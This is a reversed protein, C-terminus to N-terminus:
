PNTIRKLSANMLRKATTKLHCFACAICVPLLIPLAAIFGAYTSPLSALPSAALSGQWLPMCFVALVSSVLVARLALRSQLQHLFLRLLFWLIVIIALGLVATIVFGIGSPADAGSLQAIFHSLLPLFCALELGCFVPVTSISFGPVACRGRFGCPTNIFVPILLLTM